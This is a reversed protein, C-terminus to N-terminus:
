MKRKNSKGDSREMTWGKGNKDQRALGSKQGTGIKFRAMKTESRRTPGCM